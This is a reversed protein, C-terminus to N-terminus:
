RPAAENDSSAGSEDQRIYLYLTLVIVLVLLSFLAVGIRRSQVEDLRDRGIQAAAEAVPIGNEVEANVKGIDLSHIATRAM